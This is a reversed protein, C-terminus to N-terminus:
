ISNLTCMFTIDFNYKYFILINCIWMVCVYIYVILMWPKLAFCLLLIIDCFKNEDINLKITIM